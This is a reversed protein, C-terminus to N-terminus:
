RGGRAKEEAELDDQASRLGMLITQKLSPSLGKDKLMRRM